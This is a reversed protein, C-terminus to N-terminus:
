AIASALPLRIANAPRHSFQREGAPSHTRLKAIMVVVGFSNHASNCLRMGTTRLGSVQGTQSPSSDASADERLASSTGKGESSIVQQGTLARTPIRYM